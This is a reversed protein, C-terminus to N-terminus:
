VITKEGQSQKDGTVDWVALIAACRDSRANYMICRFM